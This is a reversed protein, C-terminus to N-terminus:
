QQSLMELATNFYPVKYWLDCDGIIAIRYKARTVAVNLINPKKGAWQAAGSGSEKDCGLVFIVEDAEKGQFSHVTGCSREVWKYIKEKGYQNYSAHISKKLILKINQIVSIFPSIVYISPFGGYLAFAKLVIKEVCDGQEKVFHNRGGIERGKVDLWVSKDIAFSVGPYPDPTQKFMKNNYAVMNSISFMPDLCRRHILLPCGLWLEHGDSYKRYGGYQNISDALMQASIDQSIYLDSITFERAFRWSLEKPVKVIPEIQLPDGVIIAKKTRWLAGLASQSTALGAEDIILTGLEEKGVYQLFTAVSAFTTSIVPVLLFLTNLLHVYSSAKDRESVNDKWIDIICNINRKVAKSNLVFAKQLMLSYYFLEERLANYKEDTWPSSSQAQENHQIDKWFNDDAFNNGFREKYKKMLECSSLYATQKEELGSQISKHADKLDNLRARIDNLEIEGNTFKVMVKNWEEKIRVFQLVLADKKFLFPFARKVFSLGSKIYTISDRLAAVSSKIKEQEKIKQELIDQEKDMRAEIELKKAKTEEYEQVIRKHEATKEVALKITDRYCLVERYKNNFAEKAEEWDPLEEDYWQRLNKIKNDFWMAEKLNNINSKKGLCASILGWCEEANNTAVKAVDSFYIDKNVNVDFLATNKTKVNKALPLERSINEVAANNNSAVLIGFKVLQPSNLKYYNYNSSGFDEKGNCFAADPHGYKSLIVAREVVNSAVIEKLLTTKGSGPPGNVSFIGNLEKNDSIAINIALQQMLNPSYSSPWKGLPYNEISLWKKMQEVDNDIEIRNIAHEDLAKIYKAIRDDEKINKRIMDIDSTYFSSLM